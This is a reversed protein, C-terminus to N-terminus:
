KGIEKVPAQQMYLINFYTEYILALPTLLM